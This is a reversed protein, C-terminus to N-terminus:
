SVMILKDYIKYSCSNQGCPSSIIKLVAASFDVFIDIYLVMSPLLFTSKASAALKSKSEERGKKDSTPILTDDAYQILQTNSDAYTYMDNIYINLILPGLM